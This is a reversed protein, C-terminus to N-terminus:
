LTSEEIFKIGLSELAKLVNSENTAEVHKLDSIPDYRVEDDPNKLHLFFVDKLMEIRRAQRELSWLAFRWKNMFGYRTQLNPNYMEFKDRQVTFQWELARTRFDFGAFFREGLTELDVVPHKEHFARLTKVYSKMYFHAISSLNSDTFSLNPWGLVGRVSCCSVSMPMQRGTKIDYGFKYIEKGMGYVCSKSVPDYKKMALNQAAADGMLFALATIVQPDEGADVGGFEGAMQFYHAPIEFLPEGECRTRIYYDLPRHESAAYRRLLRYEPLSIGLSKFAEARSLVYSGYGKGPRSLRKEILSNPLPRRNTKYVIERTKGQGVPTAVRSDQDDLDDTRLEYVNAYEIEEEKSTLLRINSLLVQSRSDAGIHFQPRGVIFTAGPLAIRRDDFAPVSGDGAVTYIEGTLHMYLLEIFPQSEEDALEPCTLLSKYVFDLEAIRAAAQEPTTRQLVIREMLKDLEPVIRQMAIGRPLGFLEVEHHGHCKPQYLFSTTHGEFVSTLERLGARFQAFDTKALEALTHFGTYSLFHVGKSSHYYRISTSIKKRSAAIAISMEKNTWALPKVRWEQGISRYYDLTVTNREIMVVDALTCGLQNILWNDSDILRLCPVDRQSIELKGDVVNACLICEQMVEGRKNISVKSLDWFLGQLLPLAAVSHNGTTVTMVYGKIGTRLTGKEVILVSAHADLNTWVGKEFVFTDDGLDYAHFIRKRGMAITEVKDPRKLAERQIRSLIQKISSRM